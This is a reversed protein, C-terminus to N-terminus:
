SVGFGGDVDVVQGTVWSAKPHLLFSAVAAVEDATGLRQLPTRRVVAETLEPPFHALVESQVLGARVANVRIGRPALEVAMDRVVAELAAKAPGLPGYGPVHRVSGQSSMAVVAGKARALPEILKVTMELLSRASVALVLDWQNSRTASLPKFNTVAVSHALHRCEGGLETVVEAIREQVKPEGVNGEVLRIGRTSGSMEAAFREANERNELYNLVLTGEPDALRRALAAGIGRTGGLVVSTPGDSM